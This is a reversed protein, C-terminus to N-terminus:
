VPVAEIWPHGTVRDDETTGGLTKVFRVAPAPVSVPIPQVALHESYARSAGQGAMADFFQQLGCWWQTHTAYCGPRIRWGSAKIWPVNYNVYQFLNGDGLGNERVAKAFATAYQGYARIKALMHHEFAVALDQAFDPQVGSGGQFYRGNAADWFQTPVDANTDFSGTGEQILVALMARPDIGIEGAKEWLRDIKAQTWTLQAIVQQVAPDSEPPSQVQAAPPTGATKLKIIELNRLYRRAADPIAQGNLQNIRNRLWVEAPTAGDLRLPAVPPAWPRLPAIKLRYADLILNWTRPGIMVDADVPIQHAQQLTAVTNRARDGYGTEGPIDFVWQILAIQEPTPLQDGTPAAPPEPITVKASFADLLHTWTRPGIMIEPDVPIGHSRQLDAVAAQTRPGYNAEEDIGFTWQIFRLQETDPLQEGRPGGPPQPVQLAGPMQKERGNRTYAHTQRESIPVFLAVM